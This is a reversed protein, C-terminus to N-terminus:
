ATLSYAVALTKFQNISGKPNSWALAQRRKMILPGQEEKM